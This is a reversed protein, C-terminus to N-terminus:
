PVTNVTYFALNNQLPSGDPSDCKPIAIRYVRRKALGDVQLTVSRADSAAVRVPHEKKDEPRQRLDVEAPLHRLQPEM